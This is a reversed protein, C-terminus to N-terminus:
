FLSSIDKSSVISEKTYIVQYESERYDTVDLMLVVFGLSLLQKIEKCNIWQKMTEVSGYACYYKNLNDVQKYFERITPMNFHRGSVEGIQIPSYTFTSIVDSLTPYRGNEQLNTGKERYIFLGLGDEPHEIRIVTKIM